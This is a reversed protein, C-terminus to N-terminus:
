LVATAPGHPTRVGETTGVQMRLTGLFVGYGETRQRWSGLVESFSLLPLFAQSTVAQPFPSAQTALQM